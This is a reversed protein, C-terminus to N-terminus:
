DDEDSAHHECNAYEEVYLLDPDEGAHARRLLDMLSEGHIVWWGLDTVAGATPDSM